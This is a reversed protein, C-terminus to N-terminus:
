RPRLPPDPGTPHQVRTNRDGGGGLRPAFGLPPALAHLHVAAIDRLRQLVQDTGLHRQFAGLTPECDVFREPMLGKLTLLNAHVARRRRVVWRMAGVLGVDDTRAANAAAEVSCAQEAMAVVAELEVM